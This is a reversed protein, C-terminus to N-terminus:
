PCSAARRDGQAVQNVGNRQVGDLL